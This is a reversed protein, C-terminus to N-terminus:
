LRGKGQWTRQCGGSRSCHRSEAWTPPTETLPTGPLPHLASSATRGQAQGARGDSRGGPTESGGRLSAEQTWRSRIGTPSHRKQSVLRESAPRIQAGNDEPRSLVPSGGPPTQPHHAFSVLLRTVKARCLTLRAHRLTATPNHCQSSGAYVGHPCWATSYGGLRRACPAAAAQPQLGASPSKEAISADSQRQGSPGSAHGARLQPVSDNRDACRGRPLLLPPHPSM